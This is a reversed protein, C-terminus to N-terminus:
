SAHTGLEEGAGYGQRSKIWAWRERSLLSSDTLSARVGLFGLEMGQAASERADKIRWTLADM